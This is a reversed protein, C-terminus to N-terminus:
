LYDLLFDRQVLSAQTFLESPYYTLGFHGGDLEVLKKPERAADFVMKSINAEAGPMEDDHAILMLLSARLYPACLGTHFPASTEPIVATVRNEWNTKFRGGYEIFWRFATLPTLYSPTGVQDFSVVPMPGITVNPISSLNGNLLTEQIAKFM